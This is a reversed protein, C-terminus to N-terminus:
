DATEYKQRMYDDKATELDPTGKLIGRLDRAVSSASADNPILRALAQGNWTIIVEGGNKIINAYRGFNNKVETATAVAYTM